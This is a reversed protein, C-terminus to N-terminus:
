ILSTLNESIIKLFASIKNIRMWNTVNEKLFWVKKFTMSGHKKIHIM